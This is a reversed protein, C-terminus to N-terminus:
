NECIFKGNEWVGSIRKGSTLSIAGAGHRRNNQWGGNYIDGNAYKMTGFGCRKGDVFTGTYREGNGFSLKGNGHMKGDLWEGEYVDGNAFTYTGIGHRKDNKWKGNYSDGNAYTRKGKGNALGAVFEGTYVSGDNRVLTGQGEFRENVFDGEYAAGNKLVLKGNIRRGNEFVGEFYDTESSEPYTLKGSGNKQDKQWNGEYSAGNAYIYKGFGERAGNEYSGEYRAGDKWLMVGKGHPKGYKMEGEYSVRGLKDDAPYEMRENEETPVPVKSVPADSKVMVLAEEAKPAETPEYDGTQSAAFIEPVTMHTLGNAPYQPTFSSQRASNKVVRGKEWLQDTSVGDANTSVCLGKKFGVFCDLVGNYVTTGNVTDYIYRYTGKGAFKGDVFEGEYVNGCSTIYKGFGTRHGYEWNGEYCCGSKWLMTGFGHPEDQSFEGIYSVRNESDDEDYFLAGAGTFRGHNQKGVYIGDACITASESRLDSSENGNGSYLTDYVRRGEIRIGHMDGDKWLGALITGDALRMEGYGFFEGNEFGGYYKDGDNSIFCGKGCPVDDLFMGEYYGGNPLSMKGRGCRHGAVLDGKYKAGDTHYLTHKGKMPESKETKSEVSAGAILTGVVADRLFEHTTLDAPFNHNYPATRPSRSVCEGSKWVEDYVRGNGEKTIGVGAKFSGFSDYVGNAKGHLGDLVYRYTCNGTFIGEVSEGEYVNGFYTIYKGLGTREGDDWEGEYCCGTQWLSTGKGHFKGDKFYGVYSVRKGFDKVDYYIAGFGTGRFEAAAGIRWTHTYTHISKANQPHAKSSIRKGNEWVVDFVEGKPSIYVANGHKIGHKWFGAFAAGEKTRTEGYGHPVGKEFSGFYVTGDAYTFKGKSGMKGNVFNGDFVSGDPFRMEGRGHFVGNHFTGNYVTGNTFTYKGNEPVGFNWDGELKEGNKWVLTGHGFYQGLSFNGEYAARNQGDNASYIIKGFGDYLGNKYKGYYTDSM